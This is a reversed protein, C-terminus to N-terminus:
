VRLLSVAVAHSAQADPDIADAVGLGALEENILQSILLRLLYGLNINKPKSVADFLNSVLLLPDEETLKNFQKNVEARMDAPRFFGPQRNIYFDCIEKIILEHYDFRMLLIASEMM